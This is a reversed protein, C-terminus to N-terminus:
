PSETVSIYTFQGEVTWVWIGSDALPRAGWSDGPILYHVYSREEETMPEAVSDSIYLTHQGVNQITYLTNDELVNGLSSQTVQLNVPEGEIRWHQTVFHQAVM